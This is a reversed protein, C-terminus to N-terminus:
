KGSTGRGKDGRGVITDLPQTKGAQFEHVAGEALRALTEPSAALLEAWRQEAKLEDLLWAALAEQDPEPLRELEEIAKRLLETM